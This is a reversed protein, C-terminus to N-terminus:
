GEEKRLEPRTLPKECLEMLADKLYDFVVRYQREDLFHHGQQVGDPHDGAQRSMADLALVIKAAQTAKPRM